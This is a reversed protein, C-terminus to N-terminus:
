ETPPVPPVPPETPPENEPYLLFVHRMAYNDWYVDKSCTSIESMNAWVLNDKVIRDHTTPLREVKESYVVRSEAKIKGSITELNTIDALTFGKAVFLAEIIPDSLMKFAQDLIIPLLYTVTKYADYDKHGFKNLMAPNDKYILKGYQIAKSYFDRGDSMFGDMISVEFSIDTVVENDREAAYATDIITQFKSLYATDMFPYKPTFDALHKKLSDHIGQGQKLMISDPKSYDRAIDPLTKM